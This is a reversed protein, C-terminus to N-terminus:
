HEQMESAIDTSEGVNQIIDPPFHASCEVDEGVVVCATLNCVPCRYCGEEFLMTYDDRPCVKSEQTM